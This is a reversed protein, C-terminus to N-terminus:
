LDREFDYYNPLISVPVPQIIWLKHVLGYSPWQGRHLGFTYFKKKGYSPLNKSSTKKLIIRPLRESIFCRATVTEYWSNSNIDIKLDDLNSAHSINYIMYIEVHLLIFIDYDTSEHGFWQSGKSIM